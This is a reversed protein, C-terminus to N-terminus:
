FHWWQFGGVRNGLSQHNADQRLIQNQRCVSDIFEHESESPMREIPRSDHPIHRGSVATTQKTTKNKCRRSRYWQHRKRIGSTGSGISTSTAELNRRMTSTSNKPRWSPWVSWRTRSSTSSHLTARGTRATSYIWGGFPFYRNEILLRKANSGQSGPDRRTM